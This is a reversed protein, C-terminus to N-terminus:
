YEEDNKIWVTMWLRIEHKCNNGGLSSDACTCQSLIAKKNQLKIVQDYMRDDTSSACKSTIKIVDDDGMEEKRDILIIKKARKMRGEEM